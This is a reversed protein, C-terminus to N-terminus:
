CFCVFGLLCFGVLSFRVFVFLFLMRKRVVAFLCSSNSTVFRAPSVEVVVGIAVVVEGLM